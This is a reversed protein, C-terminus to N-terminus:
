VGWLEVASPFVRVCACVRGWSLLAVSHEKQSREVYFAVPPRVRVRVRLRLRVCVGVCVLACLWTDLQVLVAAWCLVTNRGERNRLTLRSCTDQTESQPALTHPLFRMTM